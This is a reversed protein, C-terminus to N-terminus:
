RGAQRTVNWLDEVITREDGREPGDPDSALRAVDDALLRARELTWGRRVAAAVVGRVELRQLWMRAFASAAFREGGAVRWQHGLAAAHEAFARRSEQPPDRPAAFTWGRWLALVLWAALLHLVFPLLRLNAMVQPPSWDSSEAGVLAMLVRPKEPLEWWGAEAGRRPLGALFARNEMSVLSANRLLRPDAIGVIVGEHHVVRVVVAPDCGEGAPEERLEELLEEVEARREERARRARRKRRESTPEDTTDPLADPEPPELASARRADPDEEPPEDLPPAAEDESLESRPAEYPPPEDESLPEPPANAALAEVTEGEVWVVPTLWPQCYRLQLRQPWQPTDLRLELDTALQDRGDESWMRPGLKELQSRDEGAVILLGGAEVWALLGTWDEEKPEVRSLDLLVIDVEQTELEALRASAWRVDYGEERLLEAIAADGDPGFRQAQAAPAFLAALLLMALIRGAADVAAAAQSRDPTRGAWRLDEVATLVERLAGHTTSEHRVGQLYERDTRAKHLRLLGRRALRRLAAGRAYLVAEGIRGAALAAQAFALLEDEPLAPLDDDGEIIPAPVPALPASTYSRPQRLSWWAYVSRLVLLILVAVAGAVLWQTFVASFSLDPMDCGLDPPDGPRWPERPAAAVGGGDGGRQGDCGGSPVSELTADDCSARMGPCVEPPADRLLDCYRRADEADVGPEHCFAYAERELPDFVDTDAEPAEPAGTCAALLLLAARL